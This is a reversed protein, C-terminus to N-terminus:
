KVYVYQKEDRLLCKLSNYLKSVYDLAENHNSDPPNDFLCSIAVIFKPVMDINAKLSFLVLFLTHLRTVAFGYMSVELWFGKLCFLLWNSTPKSAVASSAPSLSFISVSPLIGPRTKCLFVPESSIIYYNNWSIRFALYTVQVVM